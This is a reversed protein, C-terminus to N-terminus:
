VNCLGGIPEVKYVGLEKGKTDIIHVACAICPDFSHVTRLIEVPQHPDVVVTNSTIAAEYAGMRGKYDRPAANWTSPVVAQYNAIKGDVIRIWHGLAGRPAEELGYGKLEKGKTLEEYDFDTWTSLDGHACNSALEDSWEMMMDAMLWTEIARAATRGVTSFLAKPPLGAAKLAKDVYSKIREDGSAYGVVMRALPGVEVRTDDYIPSKIWSYKEEVKLLGHEDFGTYKPNTQGDWPHLPKDTGEYEYWSHTVDEAVKEQDFPIVKSLDKNLVVGSPFLTKGQYMPNDDLRFGGYALYNGLGAGVGNLAEDKYVEGAMLIDPIYARLVFDRSKELLEKFLAHRSQDQLDRVCTVGGVVISQPHPNKGGWVAMMQAMWRQAELADLYHTTAILNQEPSFKYAKNGWYANAFPGLRGGEVFKKLREQVAKYRNPSNNWPNDSYNEAIKAAKYPDAKM